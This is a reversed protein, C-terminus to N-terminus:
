KGLTLRFFMNAAKGYPPLLLSRANLRSQYFV